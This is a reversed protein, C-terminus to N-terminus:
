SIKGIRRRAVDIKGQVRDVDQEVLGLMENQITLEENIQIGMDKLKAVTKGLSLVDEDQEQMVQQQLQLVGNNDLERTRETEKLPGGLVRGSPKAAATGRWLGEKDGATAAAGANIGSSANATKTAMSRLVAELGEVEKKAAGVLDRRRRLEGDGLRKAGAWGADDGKRAAAMAKLGDDLQAISTAARVLSAKAEASLTHQQQATTAAERQKLQQRASQIQSKLDRHVDLWQNPDTVASSDSGPRQTATTNTTIGTPLNLFARWASSSRWRADDSEVIHKIYKELAQRRDETMAENNVTRRLWSKGPLAVPPAPGAQSILEQDLHLFDSYRKKIEHRRLPLQLVIHYVTYPKGSADAVSTSPISIHLAPAM